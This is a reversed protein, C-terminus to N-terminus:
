RELFHIIPSLYPRFSLRMKCSDAFFSSQVTGM